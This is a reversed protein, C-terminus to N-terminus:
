GGLKASTFKGKIRSNYFQGKSPSAIFEWALTAPVKEYRYGPASNHFEVDLTQTPADYGVAAVLSSDTVEIMRTTLTVIKPFGLALVQAYVQEKTMGDLAFVKETYQFYSNGIKTDPSIDVVLRTYREKVKPANRQINGSPLRSSSAPELVTYDYQYPSVEKVQGHLSGGIFRYNM